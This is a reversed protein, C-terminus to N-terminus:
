DFINMSLLENVENSLNRNNSSLLNSLKFYKDFDLSNGTQSEYEKVILSELSKNIKEFNPNNLEELTIEYFNLLRIINYTKSFGEKSPNYKYYLKSIYKWDRKTLTLKDTLNFEESKILEMISYGFTYALGSYQKDDLIIVKSFMYCVKTWYDQIVISDKYYERVETYISELLELFRDLTISIDSSDEIGFRLGINGFYGYKSNLTDIFRNLGLEVIRFVIAETFDKDYIESSTLSVNRKLYKKYDIITEHEKNYGYLDCFKDLLVRDKEEIDFKLLFDLYDGATVQYVNRYDM